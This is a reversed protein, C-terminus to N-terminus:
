PGVGPPLLPESHASTGSCWAFSAVVAMVTAERCPHAQAVVYALGARLVIDVGDLAIGPGCLNDLSRSIGVVKRTPAPSVFEEPEGTRRTM